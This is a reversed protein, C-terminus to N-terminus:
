SESSVVLLSSSSFSTTGRIDRFFPAIRHPKLTSYCGDGAAREPDAARRCQEEGRLARGDREAVHLLVGGLLDGPLDDLAAALRHREVDVDAVHILHLREDVADDRLETPEVHHHGIGADCVRRRKKIVRFGFPMAHQPHIEGAHEEAALRGRTLHHLLAAPADDRDGRDVAEAADLIEDPVVNGLRADHFQRLRHGHLQRLM